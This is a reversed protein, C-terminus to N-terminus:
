GPSVLPEFVPYSAGHEPHVFEAAV